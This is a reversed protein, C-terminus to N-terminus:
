ISTRKHSKTRCHRRKTKYKGGAKGSHNGYPSSEIGRRIREEYEMQAQAQEQRQREARIKADEQLKKIGRERENQTNYIRDIIVNYNKRTTNIFPEENINTLTSYLEPNAKKSQQNTFQRKRLSFTRAQNQRIQRSQETIISQININETHNVLKHYLKRYPEFNDIGITLLTKQMAHLDERTNSNRIYNRGVPTRVRTQNMYNPTGSDYVHKEKIFAAFGFDIFFPLIHPDDPVMINDPKIDNHIIGVSHICALGVILIIAIEKIKKQYTPPAKNINIIVRQQRALSTNPIRKTPIGNSLFAYLDKGEIYRYLLFGTDLFFSVAILDVICWNNSGLRKKLDFLIKIERTNLRRLKPTSHDICKLVYAEGSTTFQLKFISGYGGSGLHTIVINPGIQAVINPKVRGSRINIMVNKLLQGYSSIFTSFLLENDATELMNFNGKTLIIQRLPNDLESNQKNLYQATHEFKDLNAESESQRIGTYIPPVFAPISSIVASM